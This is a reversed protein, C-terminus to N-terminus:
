RAEKVLNCVPLAPRGDERFCKRKKCKGWKCYPPTRDSLGMLPCTKCDKTFRKSM